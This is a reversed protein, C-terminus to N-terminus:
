HPAHRLARGTLLWYGGLVATFWLMPMLILWHAEGTMDSEGRAQWRHTTGLRVRELLMLRAM